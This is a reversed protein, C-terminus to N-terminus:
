RSAKLKTGKPEWLRLDSITHAGIRIEVEVDRASLDVSSFDMKVTKLKFLSRSTNKKALKLLALKVGGNAGSPDVLKFLRGAASVSMTGAPITVSYLDTDDRITITLDHISPDLEPSGSGIKAVLKFTDASPKKTNRTFQGVLKLVGSRLRDQGERDLGDLIQDDDTDADTPDTGALAEEALSARDGDGDDRGRPSLDGFYWREFADLVGDSDADGTGGGALDQSVHLMPVFRWDRWIPQLSDAHPSVGTLGGGFSGSAFGSQGLPFIFEGHVSDGVEVIQEWTGRNGKLTPEFILGPFLLSLPHEYTRPDRNPDTPVGGTAVASLGDRVVSEWAAGNFYDGSYAQGYSGLVDGAKSDIAHLVLALGRSGGPVSVAGALEDGYIDGALQTILSELVLIEGFLKTDQVPDIFERGFSPSGDHAELATLVTDVDPNGGNGVADVAQRLRPVLYRGFHGKGDLGAVDKNLQRQKARDWANEAALRELIFTVRHNRGFGSGDDATAAKNNWNASYGESPNIAEPMAVIEYIEFRDGPAPTVGWDTELTLTDANNSAIRRSQKFGTGSVITVYFESRQLSPNLYRFNPPPPSFDKGSFSGTATLTGPAAADVTGSVVILPNASAGDLPLLKDEGGQRIRSFGSSYYAINGKDGDTGIGNFPQNDVCPFNHTSPILRMAARVDLVSTARQLLGFGLGSTTEELWAPSDLAVAILDDTANSAVYVSSSDPLTTWASSIRLTTGDPVAAIERIQGAGTGDIIAVHGGVLNSAFAADLDVLGNPDASEVTGEAAGIFDVIPRMGGNGAIARSRWFVRTVTPTLPPLGPFIETRMSLPAPTGEANYRLVDSEEGVIEEFFTDIVRLQATTSTYAVSDTQGILILPAGAFEMGLGQLGEGSRNEAFHMISPTQIGTQPFGGLWPNGTASKNAAIVWSYSGLRPWAGLRQAHEARLRAAEKRQRDSATYDYRPFRLAYQALRSPREPKRDVRALPGGFGPTTSDPVSVPALPDNLFNLDKWIEEGPASGHKAILAQLENLRSPEDFSELGFNRVQLVAVAVFMEPTFQFGGDPRQPDAGGPARYFPDVQDSINTANGFLDNGLGLTQRLLSVEVPEPETGAYIADITDNVGECYAFVLDRERQPLNQYMANMESSTYLGGRAEIDDALVGGTPDLLGFAQYLNGRGVRALLIMQGLRDKAIERGNERALELDTDAYFHPLDFAPERLTTAAGPTWSAPLLFLVWLLGTHISTSTRM